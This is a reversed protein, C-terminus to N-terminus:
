EGRPGLAKVRYCPKLDAPTEDGKAQRQQEATEVLAREAAIARDAAAEANESKTQAIVLTRLAAADDAFGKTM